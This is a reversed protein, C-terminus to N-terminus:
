YLEQGGNVRIDLEGEEREAVEQGVEGGHRGARGCDYGRVHGVGYCIGEDELGASEVEEGPGILAIHHGCGGSCYHLDM